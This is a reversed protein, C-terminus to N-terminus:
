KHIYKKNSAENYAKATTQYWKGGSYVLYLKSGYDSGDGSNGLCVVMGETQSEMFGDDKAGYGGYLYKLENGLFEGATKGNDLRITSLEDVSSYGDSKYSDGGATKGYEIYKRASATGNGAEYIDTLSNRQTESLGSGYRTLVTELDVGANLMESALTYASNANETEQAHIADDAAFERDQALEKYSDLLSTRNAELDSGIQGLNTAYNNGIGTMVSQGVGSGGLGAAALSVNARKLSNDKLIGQEVKADKASAELRQLGSYYDQSSRQEGLVYDRLISFSSHDGANGDAELQKLDALYNDYYDKQAKAGALSGDNAPKSGKYYQTLEDISAFTNPM